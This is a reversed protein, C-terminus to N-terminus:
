LQYSLPILLPYKIAGSHCPSGFSPYITPQAINEATVNEAKVPVNTGAISTFNLKSGATADLGKIEVKFSM